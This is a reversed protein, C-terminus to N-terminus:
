RKFKIPWHKNNWGSIMEGKVLIVDEPYLRENYMFDNIEEMTEAHFELADDFNQYFIFYM